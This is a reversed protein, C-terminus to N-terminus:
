EHSVGAAPEQCSHVVSADSLVTHLKQVGTTHLKRYLLMGASNQKSRLNPKQEILEGEIWKPLDAGCFVILAITNLTYETPKQGEGNPRARVKIVGADRLIKLTSAVTRISAKAEKALRERGPHIRGKTGNRHHLWLNLIPIAVAKQTRTMDSQLVARRLFRRWAGERSAKFEAM